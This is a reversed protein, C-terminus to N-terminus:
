WPIEQNERQLISNQYAELRSKDLENLQLKREEGPQVLSFNCSKVAWYVRHEIEM